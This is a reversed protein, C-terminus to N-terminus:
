PRLERRRDIRSMTEVSYGLEKALAIQTLGSYGRAARIRAPGSIVVDEEQDDHDGYRRLLDVLVDTPVCDEEVLQGAALRIDYPTPV